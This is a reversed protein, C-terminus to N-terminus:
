LRDGLAALSSQLPAYTSNRSELANYAGQGTGIAALSGMTQNIGQRYNGLNSMALQELKAQRGLSNANNGRAADQRGLQEAVTKQIAQYEPSFLYSQPDTYTQELRGMYKQAEDGYPKYMKMLEEQTQANRNSSFAASALDLIGGIMGAPIGMGQLARQLASANAVNGIAGASDDLGFSGGNINPPIVNGGSDLTHGGDIQDLASAEQAAANVAATGAGISAMTPNGVAAASASGGALAGSEAMSAGSTAATGTGAGAAGALSVAAGAGALALFMAKNYDGRPSYPQTVLNRGSGSPDGGATIAMHQGDIGLDVNYIDPSDVAGPDVAKEGKYKTIIGKQALVELEQVSLSALEYQLDQITIGGVGRAANQIQSLSTFAM